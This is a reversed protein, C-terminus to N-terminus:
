RRRPWIDQPGRVEPAPAAPRAVPGLASRRTVADSVAHQPAWLAQAAGDLSILVDHADPTMPLDRAMAEALSLAARAASLQRAIETYQALATKTNTTM